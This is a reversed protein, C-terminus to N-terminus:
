GAKSDGSEREIRKQGRRRVKKLTEKATPLNAAMGSATGPSITPTPSALVVQDGPMMGGPRPVDDPMRMDRTRWWRVMRLREDMPVSAFWLIAAEFAEYETVDVNDAQMEKVAAVGASVIEAPLRMKVQQKEVKKGRKAAM